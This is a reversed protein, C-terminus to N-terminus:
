FVSYLILTDVIHNYHFLSSSLGHLRIAVNTSMKSKKNSVNLNLQFNIEILYITILVLKNKWLEFAYIIALM